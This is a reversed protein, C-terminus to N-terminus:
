PGPDFASTCTAVDVTGATRTGNVYVVFNMTSGLAENNCIKFEGANGTTEIRVIGGFDYDDVVSTDMFYAYWQLNQNKVVDSSGRHAFDTSDRGDLMGADPVQSLSSEDVDAGKISNDAVKAGNVANSAVDPKKVQGNVIDDSFVTNHGSLAVATGGGLILFLCLTSVVNSYTLKGQVKDLM